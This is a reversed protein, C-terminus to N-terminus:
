IQDFIKEVASRIHPTFFRYLLPIEVVISVCGNNLVLTGRVTRGKFEIKKSNKDPIVEIKEVGIKKELIHKLNNELWEWIEKDQKSSQFNMEIKPM